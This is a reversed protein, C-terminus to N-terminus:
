RSTGEVRATRLRSLKEFKDESNLQRPKPKAADPIRAEYCGFGAAMVM